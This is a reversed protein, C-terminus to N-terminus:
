EGTSGFGGEARQTSDTKFEDVFVVDLSCPSFFILQGIKDGKRYIKGLKETPKFRLKIEGRYSSDIVGVSNALTLDYNSISSRPFVFGHVNASSPAVRVNTSYELFKMRDGDKSYHFTPESAAILDIGADGITPLVVNEKGLIEVYM